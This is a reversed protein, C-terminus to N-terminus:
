DRERFISAVRRLMEGEGEQPVLSAAAAPWLAHVVYEDKDLDVTVTGPTLTISNALVVHAVPNPLAKRFRILRPEIPLRPQIVLWAVQLNAQVVQWLLWPFYAFLRLWPLDWAPRLRGVGSGWPLLLLPRTAAATAISGALGIVLYKAEMKASLVIWFVFLTASLLFLHKWESRHPRDGAANIGEFQRGRRAM